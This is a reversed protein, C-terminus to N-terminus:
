SQVGNKLQTIQPKKSDLKKLEKYMKSILGRNSTTNNFIKEWDITQWKTRNLTNKAKCFIKSKLLKWKDIRLRLDQAMPIKNLFVKGTGICKLSYEVIEEILTLTDTKKNLDKILKSM